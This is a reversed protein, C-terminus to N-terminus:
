EFTVFLHDWCVIRCMCTDHLLECSHLLTWSMDEGEELHVRVTVTTHQGTAPLLRVSISDCRISPSAAHRDELLPALGPYPWDFIALAPHKSGDGACTLREFHERCCSKFTNELNGPYPLFKVLFAKFSSSLMKSFVSKKCHSSFVSLM